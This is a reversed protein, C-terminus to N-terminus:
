RSFVIFLGSRGPLALDLTTETTNSCAPKAPEMTVSLPNWIEVGGTAGFTFTRKLEETANNVLFYIDAGDLERHQYYIDPTAPEVVVDPKGCRKLASRLAHLTETHLVKGGHKTDTDWLRDVLEVQEHAPGSDERTTPLTQYSILSGGAEVFRALQKLSAYSLTTVHPLVVVAYRNNGIKLTGSSVEAEQLAQEDLYDFDRQCALVERSVERWAVDVDLAKPNDKLHHVHRRTPIFDAWVSAIPYLVAVDAKCRGQTLMASLRGAYGNLRALSESSYQDAISLPTLTNIGLVWQWNIHAMLEEIPTKKTVFCFSESMTRPKNYLHAVSSAMKPTVPGGETHSGATCGYGCGLVDIGPWDIQRYSPFASGYFNAHYILSEEWVLHGTSAVGHAECWERVQRFFSDAVQQGLTSYFDSRRVVTGTGFENFLAPLALRIDYGNRKQFLDPLGDWWAVAPYPQTADVLYGSMLSVEDNFFAKITTGFDNGCHALFSEHTLTIFRRVALPDLVNLYPGFTIPAHTGDYLRNQVFAMLRWSGRPLEARLTSNTVKTTLDTSSGFPNGALDLECLLVLYPKGKPVQWEISTAETTLFDRTAYFLGQAEFEPHGDLVQSGARGSPYGMEDYIWVNLGHEKCAKVSALFKSWGVADKLYAPGGDPYGFHAGGWGREVYSAATEEPRTGDFEMPLPRFDNGPNLFQKRLQEMSNAEGHIGVNAQGRADPAPGACALALTVTALGVAMQAVRRTVREIIRSAMISKHM